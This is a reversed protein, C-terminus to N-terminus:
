AESLPCREPPHLLRLTILGPARHVATHVSATTEKAILDFVRNRNFVNHAHNAPMLAGARFGGFAPVVEIPTLPDNHPRSFYVPKM